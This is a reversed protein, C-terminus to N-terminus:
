DSASTDDWTLVVQLSPESKTRIIEYARSIDTYPMVHTVLGDTKMLGRSILDVVLSRNKLINWRGSLGGGINSRRVCTHEGVVADDHFLLACQM